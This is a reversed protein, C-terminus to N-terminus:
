AADNTEKTEEMAQKLLDLERALNDTCARHNKLSKEVDVSISPSFVHKFFLSIEKKLSVHDGNKKAASM